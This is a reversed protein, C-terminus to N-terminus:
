FSYGLDFSYSYDNALSSKGDSYTSSIYFNDNIYYEMYLSLYNIKGSEDYISDSSSYSLSSYFDDTFNYGFSLIYSNTDRTDTDKMFTRTYSLYTDYKDKTYIVKTKLFYDTKNDSINSTPLYVGAGIQTSITNKFNYFFALTTDDQGSDVGSIDYRSTNLLFTYNDKYYVINLSTSNQTYSDDIKAHYYGVSIDINQNKTFEIKKTICGNKDVLATFPTNPCRDFNNEVGDLDDDLFSSFLTTTCFAIFFIIKGVKINVRTNNKNKNEKEM